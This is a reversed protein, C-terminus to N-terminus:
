NPMIKSNIHQVIKISYKAQAKHNTCSIMDTKVHM